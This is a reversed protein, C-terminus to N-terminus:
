AALAQRLEDVVRGLDVLWLFGSQGPQRLTSIAVDGHVEFVDRGDSVLYTSALPQDAGRGRLHAIVKRLAQLSIGAARLQGAVRLAVLDEFSWLRQSGRGTAQQISPRLFGSTDWYDLTRRDVGTFQEVQQIRFGEAPHAM